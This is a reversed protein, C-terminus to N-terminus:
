TPLVLLEPIVLVCMAGVCVCVTVCLCVCVCVCDRVLVCLAAPDAVHAVRARVVISFPLGALM